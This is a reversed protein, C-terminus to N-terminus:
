SRSILDLLMQFTKATWLVDVLLRKVTEDLVESQPSIGPSHAQCQQQKKAVLEKRRCESQISKASKGGKCLATDCLIFQCLIELFNLGSLQYLLLWNIAKTGLCLSM